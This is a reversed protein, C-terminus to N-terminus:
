QITNTNPSMNRVSFGAAGSLSLLFLEQKVDFCLKSLIDLNSGKVIHFMKSLEATHSVNIIKELM